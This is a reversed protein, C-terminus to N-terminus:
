AGGRDEEGGSVVDVLDGTNQALTIPDPVQGASGQEMKARILRALHRATDFNDITLEDEEVTVAMDNELFAVLRMLSLSDIHLLEDPDTVPQLPARLANLYDLLQRPLDITENM